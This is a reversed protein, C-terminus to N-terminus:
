GAARPQPDGALWETTPRGLLDATWGGMSRVRDKIFPMARHWADTFSEWEAWRAPHFFHAAAPDMPVGALIVRDAATLAVKVAFLGSSGSGEMGPWRYDVAFDVRPYARGAEFGEPKEHSVVFAPESYGRRRREDQWGLLKEPHLTVMYDVPGAWRASIDNCAVVIDPKGLDLAAAADDWVTAAGGLVLATKM